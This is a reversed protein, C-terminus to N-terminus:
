EVAVMTDMFEDDSGSLEPELMREKGKDETGPDRLNFRYVVQEINKDIDDICQLDDHVMTEAAAKEQMDLAARKAQIEKIEALYRGELLDKNRQLEEIATKLGRRLRSVREARDGDGLTELFLQANEALFEVSVATKRLRHVASHRLDRLHSLVMDLSKKPTVLKSSHRSLFKTWETLEVAEPCDWGREALLQPFHKQAYAFCGEEVVKQISTTILHQSRYHIYVPYLSPTANDTSIRTKSAAPEEKEEVTIVTEPKAAINRSDEKESVERLANAEDKAAEAESAEREASQAPSVDFLEPFRIKAELSSGFIEKDLLKKAVDCTRDINYERLLDTLAPRNQEILNKVSKKKRVLSNPGRFIHQCALYVLREDPDSQSM